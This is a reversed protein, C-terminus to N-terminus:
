VHDSLVTYFLYLIKTKSSTKNGASRSTVLELGRENKIVKDMLLSPEFSFIFNVKELSKSLAREFYRTKLLIKHM